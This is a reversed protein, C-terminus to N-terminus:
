ILNESECIFLYFTFRDEPSMRSISENLGVYKNHYKQWNNTTVTEKYSLYDFLKWIDIPKNYQPFEM